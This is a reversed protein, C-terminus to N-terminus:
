ALRRLQQRMAETVADVVNGAADAAMAGTDGSYSLSQNVVVSM